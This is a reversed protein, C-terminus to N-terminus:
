EVAASQSLFAQLALSLHLEKEIYKGYRINLGEVRLVFPQLATYLEPCVVPVCWM